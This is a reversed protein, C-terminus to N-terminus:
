KRKMAYMVLMGIILGIVIGGGLGGYLNNSATAKWNDVQSQLDEVQGQLETIQEQAEALDDQLDRIRNFPEQHVEITLTKDSDITIQKRYFEVGTINATIEYSGESLTFSATGSSDSFETLSTTANSVFIEADVIPTGNMWKLNITLTYTMVVPAAEGFCYLNGDWSGVVVLGNAIAPTGRIDDGTEYSWILEGSEADLCYIKNDKSGIFVLGDAVAPSAYEIKDGTEYSWILEGSEADLCYVKHDTSGIYVKGYAIAPTSMVRDGTPFVWVPNGTNMDLAYVCDDCSGVYVKGNAVAPSGRIDGGTEFSFIEEGTQLDLCYLRNDWAGMYLKGDAIAPSGRIRDEIAYTWIVRQEPTMEAESTNLAYIHHVPVGDGDVGFYVVGNVVKPHARTIEDETQYQWLIEGTEADLCYFIGNESGVFVKGEAVAPACRMTEPIPTSWIISGTQLDIAYVASNEGEATAVYVTNGSITPGGAAISGVTVNWLLQPTRPAKSESFGTNALDHHFCPWDETSPSAGLTTNVPM